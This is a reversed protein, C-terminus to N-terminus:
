PTATPIDALTPISVSNMMMALQMRAQAELQTLGAEGALEATMTFSEMAGGPDGLESLAVGRLYYGEASDPQEALLTDTDALGQEARGLRIYWQARYLLLDAPDALAAQAAAFSEDAADPNDLTEHMVGQFILLDVDTPQAALGEDIEVLAGAYDEQNALREADNLHEYKALVAPDPAFFTRYVVFAIGFLILAFVTMQIIRRTRQRRNEMVLADVHWWLRDGGNDPTQQARLAAIEGAGGIKRLFLAAKRELQAQLSRLRVEEATFAGGRSQLLELLNVARDMLAPIERAEAPERRDLISILNDLRNLIERLEEGPNLAPAPQADPTAPSVSMDIVEMRSDRRLGM